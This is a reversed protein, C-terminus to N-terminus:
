FTLRLSLQIQRPTWFSSLYNVTGDSGNPTNTGQINFANFADVNLRLNVDQTIPFVKFLSIDANYNYPGRLVTKAFPAVGNPGPAYAVQVVSGNSLTVPVNNNGFNSTGVVNNIPTVYPAYDSPLGSVLNINAPSIYGNFWLKERYCVGSRCDTIPHSNKYLHIPNTPGYNGSSTIFSSSLINGITAIQFGGLLEDVFRNAHGLFRKGRGIPLDVVANFGIHHRPVNPNRLYNQFRNLQYTDTSSFPLTGPAYDAYPFLGGPTFWSGGYTYFAQYAYGAKYLRQYNVQLADYSSFGSSQFYGIQGYLTQDYPGLASGSYIGNPPVTGTKVEWVYTSVPNNFVYNQQLNKAHNYIYSVRLASDGKLKQEVTVNAQTTQVPAYHPDVFNPTIGPLIANTTGSNVVTSSNVGAVVSQPSRLIYNPLGDPSQASSTYNQYYNAEFPVNQAVPKVNDRIPTPNVYRGFGGRLVTGHRGGFPEWAFGLRPNFIFDHNELINSPLGAEAPTEIKLGLNSLNTEIAQSTYGKAIYYSFPKPMVIAHTKIDLGELLGDGTYLGPHIEWRLGVNVVLTKSVRFNDQFYPDFEMDRYHTYPANLNVSYYAANGLFLDADGDGTNALQSYNGGSAPDLNGTGMGNFVTQDQIRDPLYGLREHRYRGGFELQHRGLIKTFNEDINSIIQSEKYNYQSGGWAMLTGAIQPFGLEGFNNPLGLQAEYDANPNGGGVVYQNFWEQSINSEVFFNPSFIHTYGVAGSITTIPIEQLGTVGAPLGAAAITAPAAAPYNRLGETTQHVETYRVFLKNSQNLTHDIRFTVNPITSNNIGPIDLNPSILPNANNSPLPTIAYLTKALPSERDSSIKNRLFPTRQFTIPDTTAPDYVTQLVGSGNILGSYDGARMAVTPVNVLESSDSRLIFDEFAVFFFSKNIGNYLKPIVIPGGISAGFENRVLHPASFSSPDQRAKAIGFYNNRATEFVSGHLKNTGSKTTIIGTAPTAFQAGATTTNLQVEQISDPDPLQAQTANVEGGFNRNIMPAGDEVYELAEPNNANAVQGNGELGPTTAGLLTLVSRGNMPLQNIRQNELTSTIAGSDTTTLQTVSGSVVVQQTVEGPTLVPNIVGSQAVLLNISTTYTKMGPATATVKYTGTFLGPVQYFGAANSRTDTAVGTAINVIHISAGPFLAGTSDSVTGQIAGAGSQAISRSSDSAIALVIIMALM